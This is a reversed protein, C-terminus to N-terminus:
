GHEGRRANGGCGGPQGARVQAMGCRGQVVGRRRQQDFRGDGSRRRGFHTQRPGATLWGPKSRLALAKTRQRSVAMRAGSKDGRKAGARGRMEGGSRRHAVQRASSVGGKPRAWVASFAASGCAGVLGSVWIASGVGARSVGAGLQRWAWSATASNGRPCASMRAQSARAAVGGPACAWCWCGGAGAAAAPLAAWAGLGMCWPCWAWWGCPPLGHGCQM